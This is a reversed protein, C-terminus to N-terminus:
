DYHENGHRICQQIYNSNRKRKMILEQKERELRERELQIVTKKYEPNGGDKGVNVGYPRRNAKKTISENATSASTSSSNQSAGKNKARNKYFEEENMNQLKEFIRRRAEFDSEEGYEEHLALLELQYENINSYDIM